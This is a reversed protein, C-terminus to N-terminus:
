AGTAIARETFVKEEKESNVEIVPYEGEEAMEPRWVHFHVSQEQVIAEKPTAQAIIGNLNRAILSLETAKGVSEIKKDDMCNLTKLLRAFVIDVVVNSKEIIKDQLDRKRNRGAVMDVPGTYGNEYSQASSIAVDGIRSAKTTGLIEATAGISAQVDRHLAKTGRGAYGNLLNDLVRKARSPNQTLDVPGNLLGSLSPSPARSANLNELLPSFPLEELSKDEAERANEESEIGVDKVEVNEIEILLPLIDPLKSTITPSGVRGLLAETTRLREAAVEDSIFVSGGTKLM